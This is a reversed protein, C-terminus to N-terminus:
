CNSMAEMNDNPRVMTPAAMKASIDSRIPLRTGSQAPSSDFSVPKNSLGIRYERCEPNLPLGYRNKLLRAQRQRETQSETV